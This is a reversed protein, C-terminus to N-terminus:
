SKELEKDFVGQIKIRSDEHLHHQCSESNCDEKHQEMIVSLQSIQKNYKRCLHCTLLHMKLQWWKKLGLRKDQNLSILYGAQDCAIMRKSMFVMMKYGPGKNM